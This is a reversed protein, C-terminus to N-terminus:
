GKRLRELYTEWEVPLLHLKQENCEKCCPVVNSKTTKGGRALPVIHDMTLERASVERECYHCHNYARRNKWWQSQKLERAKRRERKLDEPDPPWYWIDKLM